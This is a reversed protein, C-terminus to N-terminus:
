VAVGGRALVGAFFGDSFITWRLDSMPDSFDPPNDLNLLDCAVDLSKAQVLTGWLDFSEDVVGDYKRGFAFGNRYVRTARQVMDPTSSLARYGGIVPNIPAELPAEHGYVVTVSGGAHFYPAVLAMYETVTYAGPNRGSQQATGRTLELLWPDCIVVDRPWRAMDTREGPSVLGIAVFAHGDNPNNFLEVNAAEIRHFPFLGEKYCRHFVYSSLEGCQAGRTSKIIQNQLRVGQHYRMKEASTIMSSQVLHSIGYTADRTAGLKAFADEMAGIASEPIESLRKNPTRELARQNVVNSIVPELKVLAHQAIRSAAALRQRQRQVQLQEFHKVRTRIQSPSPTSATKRVARGPSPDARKWVAM